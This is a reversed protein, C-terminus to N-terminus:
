TNGACCMWYRPSSNRARFKMEFTPLNLRIM